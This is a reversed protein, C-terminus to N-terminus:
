PGIVGHEKLVADVDANGTPLNCDAFKAGAALLARVVGPYDGGRDPCNQLGHCFWGAPDGDFQQDKIALSAGYRILFEVLDAYGKWCAWHLATAGLEARADVPLGAAVLARVAGTRHSSALDPILREGGPAQLIGPAEMLLRELEAPGATMCKGMFADLVTLDTNAGRAELLAATETQGSQVAMAYATRGDDRRADVAAGHDLLAAVIQAGRGRWVAWHLATEGRDNVHNPEAGAQLFLRLGDLDERDLV